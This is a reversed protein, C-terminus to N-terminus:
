FGSYVGTLKQVQRAGNRNLRTPTTVETPFDSPIGGTTKLNVQRPKPKGAVEALSRMEEMQKQQEQIREEQRVLLASAAQRANGLRNEDARIARARALTRADEEAEWTLERAEQPQNIKIAQNYTLNPVSM